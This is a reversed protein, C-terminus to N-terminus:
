GPQTDGPTLWPGVDCKVEGVTALIFCADNAVKVSDRSELREDIIVERQNAVSVQESVAKHSRISPFLLSDSWPASCFSRHDILIAFDMLTTFLKLM